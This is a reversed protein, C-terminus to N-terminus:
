LCPKPHNAHDMGKPTVTAFSIEIMQGGEHIDYYWVFPRGPAAEDIAKCVRRLARPLDLLTAGDLFRMGLGQRASGTHNDMKKDYIRRGPRTTLEEILVEVMHDFASWRERIMPVILPGLPLDGVLVPGPVAASM